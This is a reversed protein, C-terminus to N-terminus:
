GITWIEATGNEHADITMNSTLQASIFAAEREKGDRESLYVQVSGEVRIDDISWYANTKQAAPYYRL